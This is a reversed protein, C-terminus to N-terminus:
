KDQQNAMEEEEQQVMGLYDTQSYQYELLDSSSRQSNFFFNNLNSTTKTLESISNNNNNSSNFMRNNSLKQNKLAPEFDKALFSDLSNITDSLGKINEQVKAFDDKPINLLCQQLKRDSVSETSLIIHNNGLIKNKEHNSFLDSNFRSNSILNFPGTIDNNNNNNNAQYLINQIQISTKALTDITEITEITETSKNTIATTTSSGDSIGSSGNYILNSKFPDDISLFEYINERDLESIPQTAPIDLEEQLQEQQQQLPIDDDEDTIIFSTETLTPSTM